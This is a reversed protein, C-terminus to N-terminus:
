RKKFNRNSGTAKGGGSKGKSKAKPKFGSARQAERVEKQKIM